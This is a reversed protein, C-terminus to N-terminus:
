DSDEKDALSEDLSKDGVAGEDDPDSDLDDQIPRLEEDLDHADLENGPGLFKSLAPKQQRPAYLQPFLQRLCFNTFAFCFFIYNKIIIFYL